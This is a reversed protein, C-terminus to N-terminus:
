GVDSATPQLRQMWEVLAAPTLPQAIFYGQALDCGLDALLELTPQDEVGEAVTILDLNHGLEITSRVIARNRPQSTMDRVFSQDIKLEHVPLDKLYALSSFGTGFDDLAARVGLASLRTLVDLALSPDAVLSGETLEVELLRAPMQWRELLEAILDPLATNQVDQASLNVAVPVACGAARWAQGQRLAANLAWRTLPQILGSQEALPIFRAPSIPGLVPHRWRMLAEVGLVARSRCSVKPQYVLELTDEAIARRLGSILALREGTRVDQEQSYVAFGSQTRKAVSMAVDAQRLLTDGDDSHEPYVAIGVSAGVTMEHGDLEVPAGISAVLRAAMLAAREVDAGPMLVAFEDGGLRAVTDSPRVAARLRQGIERLLTDGAQHGLSDNVDKFRDLDLVFLALPGSHPDAILVAQRLRDALLTRNPLGTLADQLAQRESTAALEARELALAGQIALTSATTVDDALWDRPAEVSAALLAGAVVGQRVFPVLLLSRAGFREALRRETPDAEAGVLILEGYEFAAALAPDSLPLVDPGAQDVPGSASVQAVRRALGAEREILWVAARDAQLAAVTARAIARLIAGSDAGAGLAETAAGLAEAYARRTLDAAKSEASPASSRGPGFRLRKLM